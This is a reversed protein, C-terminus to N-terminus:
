VGPQSIERLFRFVDNITVAQLLIHDGFVRYVAMEARGLREELRLRAIM